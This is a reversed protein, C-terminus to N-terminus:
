EKRPKATRFDRFASESPWCFLSAAASILFCYLATQQYSLVYYLVANSWLAVAVIATRLLAYKRFARMAEAEDAQAVLKKVSQFAFLRLAVYSGALATAVSVLQAVYEAQVSGACHCTPLWEAESLAIYCVTVAWVALQVAQLIRIGKNMDKENTTKKNARLRRGLM